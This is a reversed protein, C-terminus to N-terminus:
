KWGAKWPAKRREGDDLRPLPPRPQMPAISTTHPGKHGTDCVIHYKTLPCVVHNVPCIPAYPSPM